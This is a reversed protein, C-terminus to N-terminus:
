ESGAKKGKKDGKDDKAVKEIAIRPDDKPPDEKGLLPTNGKEPHAPDKREVLGLKIAEDRNDDDKLFDLLKQPNNEFRKRVNVDLKEFSEKWFNAHYLIWHLPQQFSGPNLSLVRYKGAKKKTVLGASELVNIHKSLAQFSINFHPTLALLTSDDESLIEIIRRRTRDAIAAFIKDPDRELM